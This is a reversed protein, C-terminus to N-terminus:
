GPTCHYLLGAGVIPYGGPATTITTSGYSAAPVVPCTREVWRTITASTTASAGPAITDLLFFRLQGSDVLQRVRNLTPAPVAGSFGGLPLVEQGTNLIYPSATPWLTTALLYTAGDRHAQLYDDIHQERVTFATRAGLLSGPTIPGPPQDPVPSETHGARHQAAVAAETLAAFSVGGLLGAPGASADYSSGEYRSDLVSAAWTAPAAVMVVVATVAAARALLAPAGRNLRATLLAVIAVVGAAITLYYAWPLFSRHASWVYATWGLEAAVTVPLAFARVGGARYAQGLMVIGAGGLAAIPPALSALYATHVLSDMASYVIGFTVLWTGWMILGGRVRDTRPARRRWSLGFGLALLALPFLWAIEPAFEENLLKTWKDPTDPPTGTDETNTTSSGSAASATTSVPVAGPLTIGFRGLANYGFVMAVASNDTSGDVYPRDAAPTLTFAAIWALSVALMVTGAVALHWLRRRLPAPAAVLYGVALAPVVLWAQVMKCQFGLGVWVGALLLSRLRADNAARQYADAALVLCMTLCGDEMSHGFMSAVIPTLALITAALVGPVVGAWRRVVRYMVLVTVVGEIVQPLAVAWAHFGFVRVSLAQPLFSGALKDLTINAQPDFAGFVFARWSESMSKVAVPYFPALDVTAINWAYLVAAVAAVALIAPRAWRPQDHPSRWFRWRSTQSRPDTDAPPPDAPAPLDVFALSMPGYREPVRRAAGVGRAGSETGDGTDQGPV